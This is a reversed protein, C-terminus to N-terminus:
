TGGSFDTIRETLGNKRNSNGTKLFHIRLFLLGFVQREKVV